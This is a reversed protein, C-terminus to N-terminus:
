MFGTVDIAPVFQRFIGFIEALSNLVTCDNRNRNNYTERFFLKIAIRGSLFMNRLFEDFEEEILGGFYAPTHLVEIRRIFDRALHKPSGEILSTIDVPFDSQLVIEALTTVNGKGYHSLLSTIADELMQYVTGRAQKDTALKHYNDSNISPYLLSTIVVYEDGKWNFQQQRSTSVGFDYLAGADFGNNITM